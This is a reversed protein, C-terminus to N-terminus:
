QLLDKDAIPKQEPKKEANRLRAYLTSREIGLLEAAKKKNGNVHKLTRLLHIEEVEKLPLPQWEEANSSMLKGHQLSSIPLDFADIVPNESLIVASELANRLERINGPWTHSRLLERAAPTLTRRVKERGTFEDLFHDTLLEIDDERDRLPPVLVELVALRFFLDERFNSNEVEVRLDRHTAAIIRIDVEISTNSGIREFCRTELLRLMKAQAAEPLEGIEDLFITGGQAAEFKGLKLSDAGTFSGKEHGFLESEILHQPIAACNITIFPSAARPSQYHLGRSVLEKGTGTEGRILVTGNTPAVKKIFNRVLNIGASSGIIPHTDLVSKVLGHKEQNLEIIEENLSLGAGIASAAIGTAWLEAEGFPHSDGDIRDIYFIGGLTEEVFIPAAIVSRIEDGAVSRKDEFRPDISTDRSLVARRSQLIESLITQSLVFGQLPHGSRSWASKCIWEDNAMMLIAGRDSELGTVISQLGKELKEFQSYGAGLFPTAQHLAHLINGVKSADLSGPINPTKHIVQTRDLNESLTSIATEVFINTDGIGISQGHHLTQNKVPDGDVFTGNSSDLDTITWGSESLDLRAHFRSAAPDPIQIDSGPDRGIVIGGQRAKENSIDFRLSPSNQTTTHIRTMM